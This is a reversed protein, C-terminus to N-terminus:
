EGLTLKQPAFREQFRSQIDDLSVTGDLMLLVAYEEEHFRYYKLGIPEKIVWYLRGQYRHQRASLDPRKRLALPRSSSSKLSDALTAM